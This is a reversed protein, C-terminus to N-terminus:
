NNIENLCFERYGTVESEAVYFKSCAMSKFKAVIKQNFNGKIFGRGFYTADKALYAFVILIALCYTVIFILYM